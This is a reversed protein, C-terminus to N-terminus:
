AEGWSQASASERPLEPQTETGLGAGLAPSLLFILLIKGPREEIILM